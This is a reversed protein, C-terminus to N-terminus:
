VCVARVRARLVVHGGRRGEQQVSGHLQYLARIQAEDNAATRAASPQLTALAAISAIVITGVTFVHGKM